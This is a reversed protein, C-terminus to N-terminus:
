NLKAILIIDLEQKLENSDM